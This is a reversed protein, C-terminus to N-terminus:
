KQSLETSSRISIVGSEQFRNLILSHTFSLKLILLFIKTLWIFIYLSLLFSPLFSPLLFLSQHFSSSFHPFIFILARKNLSEWSCRLQYKNMSYKNDNNSNNNVQNRNVVLSEKIKTEM